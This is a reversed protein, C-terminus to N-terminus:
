YTRSAPPKRSRPAAKTIVSPSRDFDSGREELYGIVDEILNNARDIDKQTTWKRRHFKESTYRTVFQGARRRLKPPIREKEMLNELYGTALQWWNTQVKYQMTGNATEPPIEDSYGDALKKFRELTMSEHDEDM